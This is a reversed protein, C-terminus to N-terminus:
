ERKLPQNILQVFSSSILGRKLPVRIIIVYSPLCGGSGIGDIGDISSLISSSSIVTARITSHQQYSCSLSLYCVPFSRSGVIM